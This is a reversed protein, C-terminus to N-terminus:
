ALFAVIHFNMAKFVDSVMYKVNKKRNELVHTESFYLAKISCSNLDPIAALISVVEAADAITLHPKRFM